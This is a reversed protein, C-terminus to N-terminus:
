RSAAGGRREVEKPAPPISSRVRICPKTERGVTTTTPYLTIRKGIWDEINPGYMSAITECNTTNAVLRKRAKKFTITVESKGDPNKKTKFVTTTVDVIELMFERPKKTHPDVLDFPYLWQREQLSKWNTPV